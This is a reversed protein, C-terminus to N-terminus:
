KEAERALRELWLKHGEHLRNPMLFNAARALWGYRTEETIVRTGQELLEIKWAHYAEVGVFRATWAIREYPTFEKVVSRLCVSFTIWSFRSDSHLDVGGGKIRVKHSNPYWNPWDVARILLAWVREPSANITRENYVRVPAVRADFKGGVIIPTRVGVSKPRPIGCASCWERADSIGQEVATTFKRSRFNLLYHLRVRGILMKVEIPRGFEGKGDRAFADNSAKIRGLDRNLNGNAVTEIVQFYTNIPGGRWRSNKNVTWIIWLEDAGKRIAEILNADTLYVGDILLSQGDKVPSFWGPLSVGAVLFDEDVEDQTRVVVQHKNFDYANFTGLRKSSRIKEWDLKWRDRLIVRRFRSYSLLSKAWILKLWQRWDPAIASLVPFDRWNDAIQKGSLGQCYMALNFVGGSAGDAHDFAIEAEDLWVQLVGAQYAVKLGGGALILSRRPV